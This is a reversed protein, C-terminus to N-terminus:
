SLVLSRYANFYDAPTAKGLHTNFVSKAYEAMAWTDAAPPLPEPHRLYKIRAHITAYIPNYQLQMLDPGDVGSIAAIKEAKKKRGPYYLYNDYNDHLTDPEVMYLGLAPGDIQKTYMGCHSEHAATMLILEEADQSWWGLPMISVRIIDRLHEPYIM